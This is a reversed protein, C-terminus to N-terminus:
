RADGEEGPKESWAKPEIGTVLAVEGMTDELLLGAVEIGSLEKRFEKFLQTYDNIFDSFCQKFDEPEQIGEKAFLATRVNMLSELHNAMDACIGELRGQAITIISMAMHMDDVAQQMVNKMEELTSVEAM